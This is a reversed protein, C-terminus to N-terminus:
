KRQIHKLQLKKKSMENMSLLQRLQPRADAAATTTDDVSMLMLMESAIDSIWPVENGSLLNVVFTRDNENVAEGVFRELRAISERRVTNLASANEEDNCGENTGLSKIIMNELKKADFPNEDLAIELANSCMTSSLSKYDEDRKTSSAYIEAVVLASAFTRQQEFGDVFVRRRGIGSRKYRRM